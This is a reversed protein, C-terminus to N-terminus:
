CHQMVIHHETFLATRIAKEQEELILHRIAIKNGPVQSAEEWRNFIITFLFAWYYYCYCCHYYNVNISNTTHYDNELSKTHVMKNLEQLM